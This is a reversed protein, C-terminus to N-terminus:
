CVIATSAHIYNYLSIADTSVLLEAKSVLHFWLSATYIKEIYDYVYM